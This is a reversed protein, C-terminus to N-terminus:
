SEKRKRQFLASNKWDICEECRITESDKDYVLKAYKDPNDCTPCKDEIWGYLQRRLGEYRDIMGIPIQEADKDYGTVYAYGMCSIALAQQASEAVIAVVGYDDEWVPDEPEDDQCFYIHKMM